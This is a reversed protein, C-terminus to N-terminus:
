RWSCGTVAACTAQDLGTCVPSGTCGATVSGSGGTNTVPTPKPRAIEGGIAIGFSGSLFGVLGWIAVMVFLGIVSWGLMSGAKQIGDANGKRRELIFFIVISLFVIFAITMMLTAVNEAISNSKTVIGDVNTLFQEASASYLGLFLSATGTIIKLITKM